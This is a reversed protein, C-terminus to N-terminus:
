LGRYAGIFLIADSSRERIMFVFPHDAKFTMKEPPGSAAEKGIIVITAAAAKAGKEDMDFRAKQAIEDVWLQADDDSMLHLDALNEDFADVIGEKKLVEKLLEDMSFELSLKPLSLTVESNGMKSRVAQWEEADLKSVFKEFDVGEDPLFIDLNFAGNGFPLECLAYNDGLAAMFNEEQHMFDRRVISGDAMFFDDKATKSPEFQNKWIGKFYLANLLVACSNKNFRELIKDIMGGTHRYCWDNIEKITASNFERSRASAGYYNEMAGAFTPLISFDKHLWISNAMRFDTSSDVNRLGEILVKYTENFQDLTYGEYGLTSLIQGYTDGRAGNLVMSLAAQLSLPSIFVNRGPSAAEVDRLLDFAFSNNSLVVDQQSRTLIIPKMEPITLPSKRCGTAICIAACLPAAAIALHVFSKKM